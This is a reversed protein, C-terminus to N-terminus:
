SRVVDAVKVLGQDKVDLLPLDAMYQAAVADGEYTLRGARDRAQQFGPRGMWEEVEITPLRCDADDRVFFANNAQSNVAVLCYGKKEALYVLAAISAGAYLGSWHAAFRDFTPEYPITVARSTGWLANFEIALITPRCSSIAEWIWYENGDIDIVMVGTDGDHGAEHLLTDINEATVFAPRATLNSRWMISSRRLRRINKESADMVLGTWGGLEALLRTSAERYDEVGFEVFTRPVDGGTRSLLYLLIGDEGFQSFARFEAERPDNLDPGSEMNASHLRALSTRVADMEEPLRGHRLARDIMRRLKNMPGTNPM